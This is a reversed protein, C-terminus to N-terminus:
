HIKFGGYVLLLSIVWLAAAPLVMILGAVRCWINRHFILWSSVCVLSAPVLFIGVYLWFESALFTHNSVGIIWVVTTTLYVPIATYIASKPLKAM